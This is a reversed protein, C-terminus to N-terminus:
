VRVQRRRHKIVIDNEVAWMVAENYWADASIDSFVNTWLTVPDYGVVFFSQHNIAFAILGTVISLGRDHIKKM